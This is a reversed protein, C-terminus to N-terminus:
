ELVPWASVQIKIKNDCDGTISSLFNSWGKALVIQDHGSHYAKFNSEITCTDYSVQNVSIVNHLAAPDYNFVAFASCITTVLNINILLCIM